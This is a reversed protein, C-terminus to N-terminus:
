QYNNNLRSIYNINTKFSFFKYNKQYINDFQYLFRYLYMSIYNFFGKFYIKM